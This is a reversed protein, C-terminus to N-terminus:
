SYIYREITNESLLYGFAEEYRKSLLPLWEDKVLEPRNRRIRKHEKKLWSIANQRRGRSKKKGKSSKSIKKARIAKLEEILNSDAYDWESDFIISEGRSLDEKIKNKRAYEDAAENFKRVFVLHELVDIEGLNEKILRLVKTLRKAQFNVPVKLYIYARAIFPPIVKFNRGKKRRVIKWPGKEKDWPIGYSFYGEVGDVWCIKRELGDSFHRNFTKVKFRDKKLLSKKM